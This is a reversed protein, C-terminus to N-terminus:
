QNLRTRTFTPQTLKSANFSSNNMGTFNKVDKTGIQHNYSATTNTNFNRFGSATDATEISKLSFGNNRQKRPIKVEFRNSNLAYRAPPFSCHLFDASIEDDTVTTPSVDGLRKLPCILPESRESFAVFNVNYAPVTDGPEGFHSIFSKLSNNTMMKNRALKKTVNTSTGHTSKTRNESLTSHECNTPSLKSDISVHTNNSKLPGKQFRRRQFEACRGRVASQPIEQSPMRASRAGRKGDCVKYSPELMENDQSANSHKASITSEQSRITDTSIIERSFLEIRSHESTQEDVEAKQSHDNFGM